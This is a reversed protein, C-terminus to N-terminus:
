PTVQQALKYAEIADDLQGRRRHLGGLSGWWSEGDEDVLKPALNLAERLKLEAEAMLRGRNMDDAPLQDARRRLVYGLNALAPAFKSLDSSCVDSSWDRSFSTHR